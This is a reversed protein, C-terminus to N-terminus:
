VTNTKRTGHWLALHDAPMRPRCDLHCFNEYLGLGGLHPLRGAYWLELVLAHLRAPDLRAHRVDAARGQPHQSGQPKAVNGRGADAEYLKQDYRITRYGSDIHIFEGGGADRIVELTQCLPLLRREFWTGPLYGDLNDIPYPTSSSDRCAFERISFNATVM